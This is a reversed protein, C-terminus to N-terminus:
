TRVRRRMDEHWYATLVSPTAASADCVVTLGRLVDIFQAYPSERLTRDGLVFLQAGRNFYRKGYTLAIQIMDNTIGRQQQRRQVHNWDRKRHSAVFQTSECLRADTAVLQKIREQTKM